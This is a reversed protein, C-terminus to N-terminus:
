RGTTASDPRSVPMGCESCRGSVNGTLDYGCQRCLRPNLRRLVEEDRVGMFGVRLGANRLLNTAKGSVVLFVLLNVCPALTLLGLVLIIGADTKMAWLLLAMQALIAVTSCIFFLGFLSGALPPMLPIALVLVGGGIMLLILWLLVRQGRAVSRLDVGNVVCYQEPM